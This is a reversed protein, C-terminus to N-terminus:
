LFPPPIRHFVSLGALGPTAFWIGLAEPFGGTCLKGCRTSLCLGAMRSTVTIPVTLPPAADSCHLLRRVQQHARLRPRRRLRRGGAPLAARGAGGPAGHRLGGHQEAGALHMARLTSPQMCAMGLLSVTIMLGPRGWLQRRCQRCRPSVLSANMRSVLEGTGNEM